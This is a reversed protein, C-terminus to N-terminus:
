IHWGLHCLEQVLAVSLAILCDLLFKEVLVQIVGLLEDILLNVQQSFSLTYL